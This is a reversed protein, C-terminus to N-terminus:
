NSKKKDHWPKHAQYSSLREKYEAIEKQEEWDECKDLLAIAKKQTAIAEAFNGAEAYAAAMSDYLHFLARSPKATSVLKTARLAYDLAMPGNRYEKIPCTALIWIINCLPHINAPDLEIAKQYDSIASEYKGLQSYCYGRDKYARKNNPNHEITKSYDAIAEEFKDLLRYCIGRYHYAEEFSPDIGIAKTTDSIGKEYQDLIIYLRSRSLYPYIYNPELEIAKTYDALANVHDEISDEISGRTNYAKFYDPNIQISWNVETLAKDYKSAKYFVVARAHHFWARHLKIATDYDTLAQDHNGIIRNCVGRKQYAEAYHPDLDIAKDYDIIAHKFEKKQHYSYGRAYYTEANDLDDKSGSESLKLMTVIQDLTIKSIDQDILENSKNAYPKHQREAYPMKTRHSAYGNIGNADHGLAAIEPVEFFYKVLASVDNPGIGIIVKGEIQRDGNSLEGISLVTVGMSNLKKKSNSINANPVIFFRDPNQQSIFAELKLAFQQSDMAKLWPHQRDKIDIAGTCWIDTNRETSYGEKLSWATNIYALLYALDLSDGRYQISPADRKEFIHRISSIIDPVLNEAVTRIETINPSDPDALHYASGPLDDAVIFRGCGIFEKGSRINPYAFHIM